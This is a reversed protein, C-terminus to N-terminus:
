HVEGGAKGCQWTQLSSQPIEPWRDTGLANQLCQSSILHTCIIWTCILHYTFQCLEGSTLHGKTHYHGEFIRPSSKWDLCGFLDMGDALFTLSLLNVLMSSCLHSSEDPRLSTQTFIFQKKKSSNVKWSLTKCLGLCGLLTLNPKKPPNAKKGNVNRKKKGTVDMSIRFLSSRQHYFINKIKGPHPQLNNM